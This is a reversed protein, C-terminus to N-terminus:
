SKRAAFWREIAREPFLLIKRSPQSHPMQVKHRYLWKETVGFRQVVEPVTLYRDQAEQVKSPISPVPSLAKAWAMAKLRELEGLLVPCEDLALTRINQELEAILGQCDLM